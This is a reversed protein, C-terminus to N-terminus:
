CPRDVLIFLHEAEHDQWDRQELYVGADRTTDPDPAWWRGEGLSEGPGLEAVLEDFLASLRPQEVDVEFVVEPHPEYRGGLLGVECEGERTDRRVPLDDPLLPEVEDAREAIAARDQEIDSGGGCAALAIALVWLGCRASCTM